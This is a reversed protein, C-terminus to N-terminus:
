CALRKRPMLGRGVRAVCGDHEQQQQPQQQQPLLGAAWAVAAWEGSLYQGLGPTSVLLERYALRNAETNEVGISELRKGVSPNDDDM